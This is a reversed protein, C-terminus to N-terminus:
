EERLARTPDLRAARRAPLWSAAAAIAAFGAAMAAFTAPDAPRVGVLMSTMVRTVALAAAAGAALGAASLRLGYGVILGFIGSPAAGLAMRVGIEATRQRVVTSLVGYLGVAALMAAIAAFIGILMLSFRTGGLSREVWVDMPQLGAILLSPDQKRIAERVAPTFHAPDGATRLAWRNVAGSGILGDTFYIQERGASALDTNREHAAVGVIEFWEAQPTNVRVLIRQGVASRGPFAKAALNQDIIAVRRAPVNDAETFERGELIPTRMTRFYGPLVIQFDAAQFRSSDTLAEEKGWRIPSFGGTLPLPFAATVGEVGAIGALRDHIQRIFAAREAPTNAPRGGLLEFTLLGRSEFGPEVHRLALFTRVMLGSGILLVFALAVEAVVVIGRVMGGRALGTNRGGRLLHALDPRAARAVPALGFLAAAALSALVTFALVVPDIRVEALRPLTAPAIALLERIGAWALAVGLAAGAGALLLSEAMAQRVLDWRSGGIAARVALERERLSLRVLLLNAVNACAILLLFVVAGMLARITSAVGEVLHRKMPEIRIHEDATNSIANVRRIEAAVREAAAQAQEITAGPRLRGIVRWQVDNRNAPDYPIRAANWLDPLREVNADPPFLLEIGPELVGVIQAANGGADVTKGLVDRSGGYRRQWYEYSIIVSTPVPPAAPAAGPPGAPPAAQPIGDQETFDRGLIVRAGLLRFFNTSVGAGIVQEPTGDARPLVGRGAQVAGLEEFVSETGKRLDLFDANSFPFDRVARKRLDSCAVVLRDPNKYPLPRLLVANVVSFIATSAGIGLGLTIAVVVTFGPAKRLARAAHRFDRLLMSQPYVRSGGLPNFKGARPEHHAM